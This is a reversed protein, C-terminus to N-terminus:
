YIFKKVLSNSKSNIKVFYIGNGNYLIDKLEITITDPIPNYNKNFLITGVRDIIQITASNLNSELNNIIIKNSLQQIEFYNKEKDLTKTTICPIYQCFYDVMKQYVVEANLDQNLEHTHNRFNSISDLYVAHRGHHAIDGNPPTPDLENNNHYFTPSDHADIYKPIDVFDRLAIIEPSFYESRNSIKYLAYDDKFNYLDMWNSDSKTISYWQTLDLTAPSTMHGVVKIHTNYHLLSDMLSRDGLKPNFALWIALCGGASSGYVGINSTDIKLQQHHHKLYQILREADQFISDIRTTKSFRYNSSIYSVQKSLFFNKVWEHRESLEKDGSRFAGGHFYIVVPKSYLADAQWYDFKQSSDPGYSINKIFTGQGNVRFLLFLLLFFIQIIKM